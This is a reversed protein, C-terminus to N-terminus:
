GWSAPRGVPLISCATVGTAWACRDGGPASFVVGDGSKGELAVRLLEVPSRPVPVSRTEHTKPTSWEARRGVETASGVVSLRRRELDVRKVKLAALEGFRLGTFSLVLVTLGSPGAAAALKAVEDATLFRPESRM